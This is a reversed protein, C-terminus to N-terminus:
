VRHTLNKKELIRYVNLIEKKNIKLQHSIQDVTRKGNSLFMLWLILDLNSFGNKKPLIQGGLKPYLDYKSLMAECKPNRSKFILQGEIKEIM